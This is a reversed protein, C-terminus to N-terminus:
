KSDWYRPDAPVNNIRDWIDDIAESLTLAYDAEPGDCRSYAAWWEDNILDEFGYEMVYLNYADWALNENRCQDVRLQLDGINWLIYHIMEHAIVAEGFVSLPQDSIRTSLWILSSGSYYYGWLGKETTTTVVVPQNPCEFDEYLNFMYECAWEYIPAMSAASYEGQYDRDALAPTAILGATLLLLLAKM